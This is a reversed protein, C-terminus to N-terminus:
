WIKVRGEVARYMRDGPKIGFAEYFAALHTVPGNARYEPPAHRMALLWERLYEPRIVMRWAQAWALFFRQDGTFGDIVPASRGGLSRRYAHYAVSLGGLDGANEGLTLVGDVFRGDLPSYANFQAVLPRTRAEYAREDDPTWWARTRGSADRQRGAEADFGHGLEHGIVAGLAGYNVAPDADVQYFPPQLFAAPLVIENRAPDYFANVSQPTVLWESRDTSGALRKMRYEAEFRRARLVNGLLDGPEITLGRYDRWSDPHGIKAVLNGLKARAERRTGASLWDADGVLDQHAAALM